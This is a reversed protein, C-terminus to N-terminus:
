GHKERTITAPTDRRPWDIQGAALKLLLLATLKARETLSDLLLYEQDSHLNGGRVGLTDVTPLGAAALRNGDCVGGSDRWTVPINLEQGCEAIHDLLKQTADDIPKPPATFGGHLRASVGDRDNAAAIFRQLQRQVFQQDDHHVVRVNFRCVALDPVVNVPGGGEARGVNITLGAREGQLADLAVILDAMASIANRGADLDRGAHASRGRFVVTFNGSGKRAAILTGDPLTPEFVLGLDHDRACRKLLAGSGPSGLEEDPTVLVQWGIRSAVESRELAQLATLMVVLGGKADAVGPGRLRNSDPLTTSQFPHDPGFVTDMHIALLVRLEAAPRQIISIARGLPTQEIQGQSNVTEYPPLDIQQVQGDLPAFADLVAEAQRELGAINTSGTNINAWDTVLRCMQEHQADIWNLIPAFRRM